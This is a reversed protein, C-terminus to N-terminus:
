MPELAVVAEVEAEAMVVVLEEMTGMLVEAAEVLGVEAM